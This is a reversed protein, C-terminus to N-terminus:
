CCLSLDSPSDWVCNMRHERPWQSHPLLFASCETLGPLETSCSRRPAYGWSEAHFCGAHAEREGGGCCAPHREGLVPLARVAGEAGVARKESGKRQMLGWEPAGRGEERASQAPMKQANKRGGPSCVSPKGVVKGGGATNSAPLYVTSM